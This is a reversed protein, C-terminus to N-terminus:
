PRQKKESVTAMSARIYRLATSRTIAPKKQQQEEAARGDSDLKWQDLFRVENVGISGSGDVDLGVFIDSISEDDLGSPKSITRFEYHSVTAESSGVLKPFAGSVTGSSEQAWQCFRSLRDYTESDFEKLTLWGSLDDDLARWASPLRAMDEPGLLKRCAKQFDHWSVRMSGTRNLNRWALLASDQCKELMRAKCAAAASLDPKATLWEPFDWKDLFVAEDPNITGINDKVVLEFTYSAAEEDTFGKRRLLQFFQARSLRMGTEFGIGKISGYNERAWVLLEAVKIAAHPAFHYFLLTGSQDRDLIRFIERAEGAYGLDQLCRLFQGQGVQM